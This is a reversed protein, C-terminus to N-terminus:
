GLQDDSTSVPRDEIRRVVVFAAVLGPAVGAVWWGLAMGTAVGVSGLRDVLSVGVVLALAICALPIALLYLRLGAANLLMGLPIICLSGAVATAVVLRLEFSAEFGDGAFVALVEDGLLSFGAVVVVGLGLMLLELRVMTRRLWPTDGKAIAEGCAPWLPLLMMSGLQQPISALRVTIGYVGVAAPGLFVSVLVRDLNQFAATLLAAISLAPGLSLVGGLEERSWAWRRPRWEPQRVLVHVTALSAVVAPSVFSAAVLWRVDPVWALMLVSTGIVVVSSIAQWTWYAATRQQAFLVRLGYNGPVGIAFGIAVILLCQGFVSGDVSDLDLLQSWPLALSLVALIPLWTTALVVQAFFVSSSIRRLREHEGLALPEALRTVLALGLGLELVPLLAQAVTALVYIGYDAPGLVRTSIPIILLPAAFGLLRALGGQVAAHRLRRSRQDGGSAAAM